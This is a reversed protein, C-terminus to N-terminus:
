AVKRQRRVANDVAAFYRENAERLDLAHSAMGQRIRLVDRRFAADKQMLENRLPFVAQRTKYASAPFTLEAWVDKRERRGHPKKVLPM